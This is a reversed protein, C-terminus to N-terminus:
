EWSDHENWAASVVEATATTVTHGTFSFLLADSDAGGVSLDVGPTSMELVAEGANISVRITISADDIARMGANYLSYGVQVYDAGLIVDTIEFDLQYDFSCSLAAVGVAAALLAIRLVPPRKM